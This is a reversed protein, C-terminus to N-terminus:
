RNKNQSGDVVGERRSAQLPCQRRGKGVVVYKKNASRALAQRRGV